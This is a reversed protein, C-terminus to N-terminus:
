EYGINRIINSKCYFLVSTNTLYKLLIDGIVVFIERRLLECSTDWQRFHEAPKYDVNFGPIVSKSRGKM